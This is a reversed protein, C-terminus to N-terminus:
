RFESRRVNEFLELDDKDFFNGLTKPAPSKVSASGWHIRVRKVMSEKLAGKAVLWIPKAPYPIPHVICRYLREPSFEMHKISDKLFPLLTLPSPNCWGRGQRVDIVAVISEMSNRDLHLDLYIAMVLAYFKLPAICSDVMNMFMHLVRKGGRTEVANVSAAHNRADEDNCTANDYIRVFRPLHKILDAENSPTVSNKTKKGNGKSRSSSGLSSTSDQTQETFLPFYLLSMRIAKEWLADDKQKTDMNDLAQSGVDEDLRYKLRWEKYHHLKEKAREVTRTNLYRRCEQPTVGQILESLAVAEPDCGTEGTKQEYSEKQADTNVEQPSVKGLNKVSVGLEKQQVEDEEKECMDPQPKLCSLM